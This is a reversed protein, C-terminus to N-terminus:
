LHALARLVRALWRLFLAWPNSLVMSSTNKAVRALARVRDDEEAPRDPRIHHYHLSARVREAAQDLDNVDICSTTALRQGWEARRQMLAAHTIRRMVPIVLKGLDQARTLEATVEHSEVCDESIVLLFAKACEIAALTQTLHSVGGVCDVEYCWTSFGAKELAAALELTARRDEEVHSVFICADRPPDNQTMLRTGDDLGGESLRLSCKGLTILEGTRLTHAGNLREGRSTRTGNRSGLDTVVVSGNSVELCAHAKSVNQDKLTIDADSRGLTYRGNPLLREEATGDSHCIQLRTITTM